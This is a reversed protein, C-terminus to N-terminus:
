SAAAATHAQEFADLITRAIRSGGGPNLGQENAWARIDAITCGCREVVAKQYERHANMNAGGKAANAIGGARRSESSPSRTATARGNGGPHNKFRRAKERAAKLAEEAKRVEAIAAQREKERKAAEQKAATSKRKTM